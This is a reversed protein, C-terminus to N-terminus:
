SQFGNNQLNNQLNNVANVLNNIYDREGTAWSSGTSPDQSNSSTQHPLKRLTALFNANGSTLLNGLNQEDQKVKAALATIRQELASIRAVLAPDSAM